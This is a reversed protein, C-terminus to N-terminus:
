KVEYKKVQFELMKNSELYNDAASNLCFTHEADMLGNKYIRVDKSILADYVVKVYPLRIRATQINGDTQQQIANVGYSGLWECYFCDTMIKIGKENFGISAQLTEWSTCTGGAEDNYITKQVAFKVLTRKRKIKQNNAM